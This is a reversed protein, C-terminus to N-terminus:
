IVMNTELIYNLDGQFERLAWTEPSRKGSFLHLSEKLLDVGRLLPGILRGVRDTCGLAQVGVLRKEQLVLLLEGWAIKRHLIEAEGEHLDSAVAGASAAAENFLNVHTINLSGSYKKEQGAANFGAIRGQVRANRWLMFLGTRGTIVDTSEICDGCAWVDRFSTELTDDVLVGGSTGLELGAMRPLAVNPRMGIVLVVLEAPITSLVTRVGEVRKSGCIERIPEGLLVNVGEAELRQKLACAIPTDFLRPMVRDLSEILTVEWGKRRLAVVAEIGVPGSGVVVAKSGMTKRIREADYLTKLSIVGDLNVGPLRPVFPRSGTALVLRDYPIERDRLCLLSRDPLWDVVRESLLLQIGHRKYDEARRLFVQARSIEGAVYDALVCASYLPQPDESIMVVKADPDARRVSYVAEDGAIGSGVVAIVKM